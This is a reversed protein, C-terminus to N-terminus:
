DGSSTGGITLLLIWPVLVTTIHHSAQHGFPSDSLPPPSREPGAFSWSSSIPHAPGGQLVGEVELHLIGTHTSSM